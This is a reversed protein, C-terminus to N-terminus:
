HHPGSITVPTAAVTFIRVDGSTIAPDRRVTVQNSGPGTISVSGTITPLSQTLNILSFPGLDILIGDAGAHANAAQIAGRLSCGAIAM